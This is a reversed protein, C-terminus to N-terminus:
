FSGSLGITLFDGFERERFERELLPGTRDTEFVLRETEDGAGLLNGIEIFGTMGFINKHEVYAFLFPDTTRREERQALTFEASERDQNLNLGWAWSTDPIDHRLDIEWRFIGSEDRRRTENTLPDTLSLEQFSGETEVQVGKLGMSDLLWTGEIELRLRTASDINGIGDGTIVGADDQLPIRTVIDEFEEGIIKMSGAGWAGFDREAELELLWSKQPSLDPNANTDQENNLDTSAIFDFFNLQGVKREIRGSLTYGDRVTYSSSVFGKPISFKQSSTQAGSQSIESVELGLSSQMTWSDTLKRGHTIAIDGRVEEVTAFPDTEINPGLPEFDFAEFQASESELQNFAGELALQWDRGPQPAWSYEGRLINETEDVTQQFVEEESSSGDISTSRIRSIVPSHEFRYLGIVKLRGPGAGLEYDGGLETNWEDESREFRRDVRPSGSTSQRLSTEKLDFEFITYSANFNAIDGNARNWNLSGSFSPNVSDWSFKEDRIEVVAGAADFLQETGIAGRLGPDSEFGITWDVNGSKGSASIEGSDFFPRNTERMRAQWRWSGAIGENASAIINAVQGTLGPTNLSAGDVIEIREVNEAPIRSLTDSASNSKGSIRQGNILVNGSAQGFGRSGDDDQSLSFGPIQRVMDLASRPAFRTFDAPTYTRQADDNEPVEQAM